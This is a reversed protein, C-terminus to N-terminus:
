LALGISVQCRKEILAIYDPNLEILIAKRGLELAVMGTTGSGGFCDLITDGTKSGALICRKPVERPFTAFHAESYPDPGLVWISPPSKYDRLAWYPPSTCCMQASEDPLERLRALADGQIITLPDGENM